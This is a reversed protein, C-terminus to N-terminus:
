LDSYNDVPYVRIGTVGLRMILRVGFPIEIGHRDIDMLVENADIPKTLGVLTIFTVTIFLM